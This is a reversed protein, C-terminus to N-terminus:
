SDDLYVFANSLNLSTYSRSLNRQRVGIENNMRQVKSLLPPLDDPRWKARDDCRGAKQDGKQKSGRSIERELRASKGVAKV